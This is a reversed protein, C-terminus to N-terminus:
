TKKEKQKLKQHKIINRELFIAELLLHTLINTGFSNKYVRDADTIAISFNTSLPTGYVDKLNVKLKVKERKGFNPEEM